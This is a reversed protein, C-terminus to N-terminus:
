LNCSGFFREFSRIINMFYNWMHGKVEGQLGSHPLAAEYNFQCSM